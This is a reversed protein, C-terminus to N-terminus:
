EVGGVQLTRITEKLEDVQSNRSKLTSVLDFHSRRSLRFEEM